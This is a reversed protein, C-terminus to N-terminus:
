FIYSSAATMLTGSFGGYFVVTFDLEPKPRQLEASTVSPLTKSLMGALVTLTQTAVKHKKLLVAAESFFELTTLLRWIM